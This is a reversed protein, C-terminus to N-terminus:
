KGQFGAEDVPEDPTMVGGNTLAEVRVAVESMAQMFHQTFTPIAPEDKREKGEDDIWVGTEEWTKLWADLKKQDSVSLVSGTRLMDKIFLLKREPAVFTNIEPRAPMSYRAMEVADQWDPDEPAVPENFDLYEFLVLMGAANRVDRAETEWYRAAMERAHDEPFQLDLYFQVARDGLPLASPPDFTMPIRRAGSLVSQMRDLAEQMREDVVIPIPGRVPHELVTDMLVLVGEPVETMAVDYRQATTRGIQKRQLVQQARRQKRNLTNDSM